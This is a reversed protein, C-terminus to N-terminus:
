GGTDGPKTRGPLTGGQRGLVEGTDTLTVRVSQGGPRGDRLPHLELKVKDGPKLSEPTWGMRRLPGPGTMEAAWLQDKSSGDSGYVWLVVHPNVWQFLKVTGVIAKTEKPDFMAFSHHALASTADAAVGLTFIVFMTSALRVSKM